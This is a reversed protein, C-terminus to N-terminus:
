ERGGLGDEGDQGLERRGRKEKRTPIYATTEVYLVPHDAPPSACGQGLPHRQCLLFAQRRRSPTRFTM